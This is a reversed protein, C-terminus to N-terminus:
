YVLLDALAELDAPRDVDSRTSLEHWQWGLDRFKELTAALVQGSGWPIGSFAQWDSQRVGILYYGGDRAPGIVADCGDRLAGAAQQLDRAELFPCDTGVLVAGGSQGAQSGLALHMREGLDAGKQLYLELGFERQIEALYPHESAPICWLGVPGIRAEVATAVTRWLMARHLNAARAAGIAPILRTKVQGPVPTRTFVLVPVAVASAQAV